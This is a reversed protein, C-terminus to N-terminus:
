MVIFRKMMYADSKDKYYKPLIGTVKFGRKTYFDIAETNKTGVELVISTMMRRRAHDLGMEFLSSGIGKMRHEERVALMMIRLTRGDLPAGILFGIPGDIGDAVLFCEPHKEFFFDFLEPTYDERLRTDAIDKIESLDKREVRRIAVGEPM